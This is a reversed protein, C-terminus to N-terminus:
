WGERELEIMSIRHHQFLVAEFGIIGDKCLIFMHAEVLVEQRSSRLKDSSSRCLIRGSASLNEKREKTEGVRKM